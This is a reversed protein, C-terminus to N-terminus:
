YGVVARGTQGRIPPDNQRHSVGWLFLEPNPHRLAEANRISISYRVGRELAKRLNGASHFEKRKRLTPM